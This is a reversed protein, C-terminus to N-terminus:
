EDFLLDIEDTLSKLSPIRKCVNFYLNACDLAKITRDIIKGKKKYRKGVSKYIQDLNESARDILETNFTSPRFGFDINITDDTLTKDIILFHNEEALIWSEVEMISLIIDIPINAQPLKYYLGKVLNHIDKREVDPYVDRWGIIKYYGAKILSQRRDLIYSKIKQDGGCNFILIFYKTTDEVENTEITTYQISTRSGGHIKTVDIIIKKVGLVEILLKKLFEQETYGEVFFAIKKLKM